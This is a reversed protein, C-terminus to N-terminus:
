PNLPTGKQLEWGNAEATKRYRERFRFALLWGVSASVFILAAVLVELWDGEVAETAVVVAGLLLWVALGVKAMRESMMMSYGTRALVEVIPRDNLDSIREGSIALNGLRRQERFPLGRTVRRSESLNRTWNRWYGLIRM